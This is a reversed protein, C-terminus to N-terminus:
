PLRPPILPSLLEPRALSPSEKKELIIRYMSERLERSEVQEAVFISREVDGLDLYLASTKLLMEDADYPRSPWGALVLGPMALLAVLAATFLQHASAALYRSGIGIVALWVTVHGVRLRSTVFFAVLTAALFLALAVCFAEPAPTERRRWWGAVTLGLAPLAATAVWGWGLPNYWMLPSAPALYSYRENDAAEERHLYAFMKWGLASLFARPDEAVYRLVQRVYFANVESPRLTRGEQQEAFARAGEEEELPLVNLGPPPVQEGYPNWPNNGLYLNFGMSTQVPLVEGAAQSNHAVAWLVPAAAGALVALLAALRRGRAVLPPLALVALFTSRVLTAAGCALGFAASWWPGPEKLSRVGLYLVLASGLIELSTKHLQAAYFPFIPDLLAFAFLGLRVPRPVELLALTRELLVAAGLGMACQLTVIGWVNWGFVKLFGALLYSYLPSQFFLPHPDRGAALHFAWEVQYRADLIPNGFFPNHSFQWLAAGQYVAGLALLGPM